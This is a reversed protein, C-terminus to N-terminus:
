KVVKKLDVCGFSARTGSPLRVPTCCRCLRAHLARGALEPHRERLLAAAGSVRGAAFSTGSWRAQRGHLYPGHLDVGPAAVRTAESRAAHNSFRALVGAGDVASVALVSADNALPSLQSQGDNGASVVIVVGAAELRAMEAHLTRPAPSASSVSCNIVDVDLAACRRLARLLAADSGRGEDDRVRIPVIVADPAAFLVQGAVFTGHGAGGDVLGDGDDDRGNGPDHADLDGDIADYGTGDLRGRLAPHRLDFGGDLVAVRIGRGTATEHAGGACSDERTADSLVCLDNDVIPLSTPHIGGMRTPAPRATGLLVCALAALLAVCGTTSTRTM